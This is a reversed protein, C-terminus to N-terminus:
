GVAESMEALTAGKAAQMMGIIKELKSGPRAAKVVPEGALEADFKAVRAATKVPKRSKGKTAKTIAKRAKTSKKAM